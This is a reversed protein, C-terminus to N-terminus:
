GAVKQLQKLSALTSEVIRSQRQRQKLARVLQHAISTTNRLADRLAIAQEIPGSKTVPCPRKIRHVPKAPENAVVPPLNQVSM